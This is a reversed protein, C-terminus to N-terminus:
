FAFNAWPNSNTIIGSVTNTILPGLITPVNISFDNAGSGEVSNRIIINNTGPPFTTIGIAGSGIVHNGEIRNNSGACFIAPASNGAFTNNLILSNESGSFLYIGYNNNKFLCDTVVLNNSTFEIGENNNNDLICDRIVAGNCEINIGAACCSIPLGELLVDSGYASIGSSWGIITGGRVIVNTCGGEIAVAVESGPTGTMSFGNLDLTVNNTYIAVGSRTSTGIINTTLYYSGSNVILFDISGGGPTHLADVPTRPEVQSLALMTAGPPGPPTLSGQACATSFRANIISLLAAAILWTATGSRLVSGNEDGKRRQTLNIKMPKEPQTLLARCSITM